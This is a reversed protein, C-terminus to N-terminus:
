PLSSVQLSDKLGPLLTGPALTHTFPCCCSRQAIGSFVTTRPAQQERPGRGRGASMQPKSGKKKLRSKSLHM